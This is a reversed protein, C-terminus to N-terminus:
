SGIIMVKVNVLSSLNQAATVITGVAAAAGSDPWWAEIKEDDYNYAFIYGMKSQILVFDITGLRVMGPTLSEGGTGLSDPFSVDALVVAKDGFVSYDVSNITLAM